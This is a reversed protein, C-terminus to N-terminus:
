QATVANWYNLGRIRRTIWTMVDLWHRCDYNNAPMPEENKYRQAARYLASEIKKTSSNPTLAAVDRLLQPNGKM